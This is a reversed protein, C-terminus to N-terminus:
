ARWLSMCPCQAAQTKHAKWKGIQIEPDPPSGNVPLALLSKRGHLGIHGHVLCGLLNLESTLVIYQFILRERTVM